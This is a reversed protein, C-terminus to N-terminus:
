RASRKDKSQELLAKLLEPKGCGVIRGTDTEVAVARDDFLLVMNMDKECTVILDTGINKLCWAKVRQIHQWWNPSSPNARATVIRVEVENALLHRVIKILSEIPQGDNPYEDKCITGDFDFGVWKSM